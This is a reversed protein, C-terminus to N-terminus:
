FQAVVAVSGAITVADEILAAAFGPMNKSMTHRLHYGAISGALAGLAGAIAGERVPKKASACLAAGCIAGSLLRAALPGPSLRSPTAALKDAVLEGAAMSTLTRAVKTSAMVKLPNKRSRVCRGRAAQSLVAPPTLSRLGALVGIATSLVLAKERKM